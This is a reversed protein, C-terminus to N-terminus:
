VLLALLNGSVATKVDKDATLFQPDIDPPDRPDSSHLRVTGVSRPHLVVPMLSLGDQMNVNGHHEEVTQVYLVALKLVVLQVVCVICYFRCTDSIVCYV